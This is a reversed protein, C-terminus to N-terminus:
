TGAEVELWWPELTDAEQERMDEGEEGEGEWKDPVLEGVRMDVVKRGQVWSPSRHHM